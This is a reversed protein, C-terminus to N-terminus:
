LGYAKKILLKNIVFFVNKIKYSLKKPGTNFSELSKRSKLVLGKELCELRFYELESTNRM